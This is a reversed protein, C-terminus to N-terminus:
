CFCLNVEYKKLINSSTQSINEFSFGRSYSLGQSEVSEKILDIWDLLLLKTSIKLHVACRSRNM